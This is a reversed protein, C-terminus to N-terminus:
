WTQASCEITDHEPWPDYRQIEFAKTKGAKMGDIFTNDMFVIKNDKRLVVSLNVSDVDISSTNTIEGTILNEYDGKKESVNEFTFDSARVEDYLSSRTTFEDWEVDFLIQADDSLDAFPMSFMGCLTITDGPMVIGGMQEETSMISGDGNKVTAIVEPFEAILNENPNHIMGCFHVYVTDDYPEDYYWGYDVLELPLEESSTSEVAFSSSTPNDGAESSDPEDISGFDDSVPEAVDEKARAGNVDATSNGSGSSITTDTVEANDIKEYAIFWSGMISEITSVKVVVTDGEKIDPNRSSVFNLHEGAWVNYGFASDPHLEGAVFRVVKGELNEGANLAAEFSEADAYDIATKPALGCGWTGVIMALILIIGVSKQMFRKM